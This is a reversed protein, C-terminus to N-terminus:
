RLVAELVEHISRGEIGVIADAVERYLPERESWMKQLMADPDADLLPRHSGTRVRDVVASPGGCLWVVRADSVALAARNAERVVIGGAAAIVSPTPSALAESLVLSELDRFTPEGDEAFIARVSRGTRQEIMADTDLFPRGLREAALRGITTKGSGTLGILVLHNTGLTSPRVSM